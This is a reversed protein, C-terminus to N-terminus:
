FRFLNDFNTYEDKADFVKLGKPQKYTDQGRIRTGGIHDSPCNSGKARTYAYGRGVSYYGRSFRPLTEDLDPSSEPTEEDGM